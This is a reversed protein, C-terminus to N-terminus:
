CRLCSMRKTVGSSKRGPAKRTCSGGQFCDVTAQGEQRIVIENAIGHRRLNKEILTAHGPDDGVLHITIPQNNEM